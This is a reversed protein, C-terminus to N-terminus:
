KTPGVLELLDRSQHRSNKSKLPSNKGKLQFIKSELKSGNFLDLNSAQKSEVLMKHGFNFTCFNLGM